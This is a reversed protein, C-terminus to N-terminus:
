TEKTKFTNDFWSTLGEVKEYERKSVDIKFGIKSEGFEKVADQFRWCNGSFGYEYPREGLLNINEMHGYTHFFEETWTNIISSCKDMNNGQIYLFYLFYHGLLGAVEMLLLSEDITYVKQKKM